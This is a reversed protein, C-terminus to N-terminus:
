FSLQAGLFQHKQLTTNFFVRLLIKFQLSIFGTLILPFQNQINMPLVLASASVGISQGGSSFFQSFSQLCSPFPSSLPHSPLWRSLSCAGPTPSPCPPRAHQLGHPWLSDSLVSRSFQPNISLSCLMEQWTPTELCLYLLFLSERHLQVSTPSHGSIRFDKWNGLM